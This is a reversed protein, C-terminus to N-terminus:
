SLLRRGPLLAPPQLLSSSTSASRRSLLFRQAVEFVVGFGPRQRARPGPRRVGHGQAIRAEVVRKLKHWNAATSVSTGGFKLVVFPPSDTAM